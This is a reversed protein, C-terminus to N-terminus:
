CKFNTTTTRSNYDYEGDDVFQSNHQRIVKAIGPLITCIQTEVMGDIELNLQILCDYVKNQIQYIM